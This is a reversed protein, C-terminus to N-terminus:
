QAMADLALKMLAKVEEEEMNMIKSIEELTAERGLDEALKTTIENLANIKDALRKATQDSMTEEELAWKMAEHIRELVHSEFDGSEFTEVAMALAVNGEAVLEAFSLEDALYGKAAEIVRDLYGEILRNKALLDGGKIRELLQNTEHFDCPVIGELEEEYMKFFNLESM